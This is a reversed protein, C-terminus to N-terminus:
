SGEQSDEDFCPTVDVYEELVTQEYTLGLEVLLQMVYQACFMPPFERRGLNGTRKLYTGIMRPMVADDSDITILLFGEATLMRLAELMLPRERGPSYYLSHTYHICDFHVDTQLEEIGIPLLEYQDNQFGGAQM